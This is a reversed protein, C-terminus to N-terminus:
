SSVITKFVYIKMLIIDYTGIRHDKFQIRNISHRICKNDLLVDKYEDYSRTAVVNRNVYKAKKPENNGVLFSYMKSKLGAFKEIAVGGTKDIM